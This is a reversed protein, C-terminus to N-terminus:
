HTSWVCSVLTYWKQVDNLAHVGVNLNGTLSLVEVWFLLCNTFFGDIARYVEEVDCGDSPIGLLHRTWFQCAYGLADGIHTKLHTPLDKVESLVAHDDLNCINKKLREGM